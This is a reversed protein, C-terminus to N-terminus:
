GGKMMARTKEVEKDLKLEEFITIAQDFTVAAKTNQGQTQYVEALARQSQATYYPEQSLQISSVIYRETEQPNGQRLLVTGMTRLGEHLVSSDEEHIVQQAFHSAETITLFLNFM